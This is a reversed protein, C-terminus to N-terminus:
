KTMKDGNKEKDQDIDDCLQEFEDMTLEVM